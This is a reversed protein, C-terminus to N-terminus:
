RGRGAGPTSFGQYDYASRRTPRVTGDMRQQSATVVVRVGPYGILDWGVFDKNGGYHTDCFTGEITHTRLLGFFRASSPEFGTAAGQEMDSLVDDQDAEALGAFPAGKAARAYADVAALGGTYAERHSSLGGSLGRDIYYAAGAETAGPGNEDTPILRAVIAELIRSEAVNLTEFTDQTPAAAPVLPLTPVPLTATAGVIGARKLLERRSLGKGTAFARVLDGLRKRM